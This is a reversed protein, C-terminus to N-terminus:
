SSSARPDKQMRVPKSLSALLDCLRVTVESIWGNSPPHLRLTRQPRNSCRRTDAPALRGLATGIESERGEANMGLEGESAFLVCQDDSLHTLVTPFPPSIM